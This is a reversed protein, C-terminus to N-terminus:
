QFYPRIADPIAGQLQAEPPMVKLEGFTVEGDKRVFTQSASFEGDKSFGTAMVIEIVTTDGAAHREQLEGPRHGGKPAEGKEYTKVFAESCVVIWEPKGNEEVLQPLMRRIVPGVQSFGNLVVYASGREGKFFLAPDNEVDATLNYAEIAEEPTPLTTSDFM